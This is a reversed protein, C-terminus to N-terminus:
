SFYGPVELLLRGKSAPLAFEGEATSPLLARTEFCRVQTVSKKIRLTEGAFSSREDIVDIEMSKRVPIYHLLTLLLDAGRRRPYMGMTSPLGSGILPEGVLNKMVKRWVERVAPNGSRRYESFIPDAFYVFGPGMVVAPHRDADAVPPTQSHSSFTIANRKFYPLVRDVLVETQAAPVVQMGARYFVRDSTSMSQDFDARARWYTPYKETLGFFKLPIFGLVWRGEADFGSRYSLILRGGRRHFAALKAAMAEDVLTSDPLMLLSYADLSDLSDLMACSYHAEECLLVAGEESTGGETGPASASFVGVEPAIAESGHYFAEAGAWQHYVSGILDYAAPDLKGRPPLQDGISSAGGLAQARFCEYELAAQPKIGGFDGWSKQFRGTMGLWPKGWRSQALAMRPFHYYGWFGSPLSEIESHTQFDARARPGVRPDMNGDNQANYFVTAEPQLSHIIHTFKKAFAKQAAGQFLDFTCRDEQMLKLKERFEISAPSWCAGPAFFLIDFFFGDVEKGYRECIERVHAEIYDQYDPHLPNNFKWMAVHESEGDPGVNWGAFNGGKTLQRWEPFRQAVNEEWVITTYIPARIGERHLAEIQEGLLDRPGIAPHSVGTQTPYYCMGHHCKAFVTVSNVHAKKITAAFEQADFERGVDPIFPSTHFDLHVQRQHRSFVSHHNMSAQTAARTSRRTLGVGYKSVPDVLDNVSAYCSVAAVCNCRRSTHM